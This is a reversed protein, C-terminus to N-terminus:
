KSFQHPAGIKAWTLVVEPSIGSTILGTVAAQKAKPSALRSTLNERCKNQKETM